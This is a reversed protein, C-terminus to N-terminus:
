GQKRGVTWGGKLAKSAKRSWVGSRQHDDQGLKAGRMVAGEILMLTRQDPDRL